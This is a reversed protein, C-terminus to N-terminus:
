LGTAKGSGVAQKLSVPRNEAEGRAIWENRRRRDVASSKCRIPRDFQCRKRLRGNVRPRRQSHNDADESGQSRSIRPRGRKKPASPQNSPRRVVEFHEHQKLFHHFVAYDPM